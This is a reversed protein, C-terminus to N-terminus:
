RWEQIIKSAKLAFTFFTTGKQYRRRQCRAPCQARRLAEHRGPRRGFSARRRGHQLVDEVELQSSFLFREIWFHRNWCKSCFFRYHMFISFSCSFFRSIFSNSDDSRHCKGFRCKIFYINRFDIFHRIIFFEILLWIRRNRSCNKKALMKLRQTSTFPLCTPIPGTCDSRSAARKQM